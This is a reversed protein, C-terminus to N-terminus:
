DQELADDVDFGIALALASADAVVRSVGIAPAIAILVGVIEDVSTGAAVAIAVASSYSATASNLALLAAVRVLAHTRADLTSLELNADHSNLVSDILGDDNLALRVLMEQYNLPTPGSAAGSRM